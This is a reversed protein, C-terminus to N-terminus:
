GGIKPIIVFETEPYERELLNRIYDETDRRIIDDDEEPFLNYAVTHLRIGRKSVAELSLLTHNISGLRGSTVFILPYKKMAIYDITM